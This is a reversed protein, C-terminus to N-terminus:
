PPPAGRLLARLLDDDPVAHLPSRAGLRPHAAMSLALWRPGLADQLRQTQQRLRSIIYSAHSYEPPPHARAEALLPLLVDRLLIEAWAFVGLRLVQTVITGVSHAESWELDLEGGALQMRTRDALKRVYHTLFDYELAARLAPDPHEMLVECVSPAPVRSRVDPHPCFLNVSDERLARVAQPVFPWPDRTATGAMIKWTINQKLADMERAWQYRFGREHSEMAPIVAGVQGMVAFPTEGRANPAELWDLDATRGDARKYIAAHLARLRPEVHKHMTEGEMVFAVQADFADFIAAHLSTGGAARLRDRLAIAAHM